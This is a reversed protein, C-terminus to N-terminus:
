RNHLSGTTCQTCYQTRINSIVITYLQITYLIRHGRFMSLNYGSRCNIKDESSFKVKQQGTNPERCQVTSAYVSVTSGALRGLM